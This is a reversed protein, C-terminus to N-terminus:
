RFGFRGSTEQQRGFGRLDDCGGPPAGGEENCIGGHVALAFSTWWRLIAPFRAHEEQGAGRHQSQRQWHFAM